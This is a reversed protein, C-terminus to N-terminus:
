VDLLGRKEKYDRIAQLRRMLIDEGEQYEDETIDDLEFRMQLGLLQQRIADEDTLEEEAHEYLKKGVWHVIKFPALIIDDLVFAM